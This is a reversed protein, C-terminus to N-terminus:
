LLMGLAGISAQVRGYVLGCWLAPACIEVRRPLWFLLACDKISFPDSSSLTVSGTRLRRRLLSSCASAAYLLCPCGM